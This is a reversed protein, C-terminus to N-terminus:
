EAALFYLDANLECLSLTNNFEVAYKNEQSTVISCNYSIYTYRLGM